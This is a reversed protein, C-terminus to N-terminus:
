HVFDKDQNIASSLMFGMGFMMSKEKFIPKYIMLDPLCRKPNARFFAEQLSKVRAKIDEPAEEGPNVSSYVLSFFSLSQGREFPTKALVARRWELYARRHEEYTDEHRKNKTSNEEEHIFGGIDNKLIHHNGFILKQDGDVSDDQWVKDLYRADSNQIDVYGVGKIKIKSAM